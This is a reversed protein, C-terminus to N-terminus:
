EDEACPQRAIAFVALGYGAQAILIGPLAESPIGSVTAGAAYGLWGIGSVVRSWTVLLSASAPLLGPVATSIGFIVALILSLDIM